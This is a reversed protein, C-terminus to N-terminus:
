PRFEEPAPKSPRGWGPGRAAGAALRRREAAHLAYVYGFAETRIPERVYYTRGLYVLTDGPTVPESGGIPAAFGPQGTPLRVRLAREETSVHGERDVDAGSPTSPIEAYLTVASGGRHCFLVTTGLARAQALKGRALAQGIRQALTAM